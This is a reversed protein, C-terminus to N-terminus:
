GWACTHIYSVKDSLPMRYFRRLESLTQEDSALLASEFGRCFRAAFDSAARYRELQEQNLHNHFQVNNFLREHLSSILESDQEKMALQMTSVFKDVEAQLELELLSVSGDRSARCAIFDFHSLGEIVKCLDDLQGAMLAAAPSAFGLRDFIEEDLYLSLSIEDGDDCLLLTEGSTTLSNDDSIARAVTADTILFDRVDYGPDTQYTERLQKQLRGIM